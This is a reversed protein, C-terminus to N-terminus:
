EEEFRKWVKRFGNKRDMKLPNKVPLFKKRIQWSARDLNRGLKSLDQVSEPSSKGPNNVWNDHSVRPFSVYSDYSDVMKSLGHEVAINLKGSPLGM